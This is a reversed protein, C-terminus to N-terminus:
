IIVSNSPVINFFCSCSLALFFFVFEFRFCIVSDILSMATSSPFFTLPAIAREHVVHEANGNGMVRRVWFILFLSEFYSM